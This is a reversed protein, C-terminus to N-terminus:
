TVSWLKFSLWCLTQMSALMDLVVHVEVASFFNMHMSMNTCMYICVYIYIFIYICVYQHIPM